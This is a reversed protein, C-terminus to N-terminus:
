SFSYPCCSLLMFIVDKQMRKEAVNDNDVLAVRLECVCVCSFIVYRGGNLWLVLPKSSPDEEAEFFWYFLARGSEKNVTIYGSYHAFSVNFNQGPLTSVKDLQQQNIADSSYSSSILHLEAVLIM